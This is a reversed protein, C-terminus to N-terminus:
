EPNQVAKHYFVRLFISLAGHLIKQGKEDGGQDDASALVIRLLVGGQHGTGFRGYTVVRVAVGLGEVGGIFLDTEEFGLGIGFGTESLDFGAFGLTEFLEFGLAGHGDGPDFRFFRAFEFSEFDFLGFVGVGGLCLHSLGFGRGIDDSLLFALFGGEDTLFFGNSEVTLEEDGAHDDQKQQHQQDIEEVAVALAEFGFEVIVLKAV